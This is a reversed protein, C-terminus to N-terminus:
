IYKGLRGQKILAERFAEVIEDVSIEEAKIIEEIKGVPLEEDEKRDYYLLDGVMDQIVGKVLNNMLAGM